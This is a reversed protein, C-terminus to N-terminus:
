EETVARFVIMRMYIAFMLSIKWLLGQGRFWKVRMDIASIIQMGLFMM